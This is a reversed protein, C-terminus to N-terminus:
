KKMGYSVLVLEGDKVLIVTEWERTRFISGAANGLDSPVHGRSTLKGYVVDASCLRLPHRSASQKAIRRAIDLLRRRRQVARERRRGKKRKGGGPDVTVELTFDRTFM